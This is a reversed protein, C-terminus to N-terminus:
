NRTRRADRATRAGADGARAEVAFYDEWEQATKEKLKRAIMAHKEDYRAYREDLSSREAEGGRRDRHLLPPAPARNSAALQILGDSAQHM